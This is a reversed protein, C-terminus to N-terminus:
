DSNKIFERALQLHALKKINYEKVPRGTNGDYTFAGGCSAYGESLGSGFSSGASLPPAVLPEHTFGDINSFGFKSLKAVLVEKEKVEKKSAFGEDDGGPRYDTCIHFSGMDKEVRLELIEIIKDLHKLHKIQTKKNM